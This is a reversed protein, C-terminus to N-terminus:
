ATSLHIQTEIQELKSDILTRLKEQTSYKLEHGNSRLLELISIFLGPDDDRELSLTKSRMRTPSADWAHLSELRPNNVSTNARSDPTPLQTVSSKGKEASQKGPTSFISSKALKRAHEIITNIPLGVRIANEVNSGKSNRSQDNANDNDDSNTFDTSTLGRKKLSFPTEPLQAPINTKTPTQLIPLPSLHPQHHSMATAEDELWLFFSCQSDLNQCRWVVLNLKEICLCTESCVAREKTNM